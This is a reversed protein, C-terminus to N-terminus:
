NDRNSKKKDAHKIKECKFNQVDFMRVLDDGIKVCNEKNSFYHKHQISINNMTFVLIWFHM